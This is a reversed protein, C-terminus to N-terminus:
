EFGELNTPIYNTKSHPTDTRFIVSHLTSVAVLDVTRLDAKARKINNNENLEGPNESGAGSQARAWTLGAAACISFCSSLQRAQWPWAPIVDLLPLLMVM